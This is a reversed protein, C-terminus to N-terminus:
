TSFSVLHYKVVIAISSNGAAPNATPVSVVISGNNSSGGEIPAFEATVIPAQAYASVASNIFTSPIDATVKTGSGNTYRFELANAGTYATGRYTIRATIGDVIVVTLKGPQPVLQIPTTHLAKIQTSTLLTTSILSHQEIYQLNAVPIQPSDLGNHAHNPTSAARYQSSVGERQNIFSIERDIYPKMSNFLSLPNQM